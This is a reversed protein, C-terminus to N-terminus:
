PPPGEDVYHLQTAISRVLRGLEKADPAERYFQFAEVLENHIQAHTGLQGPSRAAVAILHILAQEYHWSRQPLRKSVHAQAVWVQWGPPWLIERVHAWRIQVENASRCWEATAESNSGLWLRVKYPANELSVAGYSFFSSSRWAVDDLKLEPQWFDSPYGHRPEENTTGGHEDYTAGRDSTYKESWTQCRWEIVGARLAGIIAMRVRSGSNLRKRKGPYHHATLREVAEQPTVWEDDM